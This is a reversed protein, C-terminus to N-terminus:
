GSCSLTLCIDYRYLYTNIRFHNHIFYSFSVQQYSTRPLPVPRQLQGGGGGAAPGHANARQQSHPPGSPPPRKPLPPVRNEQPQPPQEIVPVRNEHPPQEVVLSVKSGSSLCRSRVSASDPMPVYSPNVIVTGSSHPFLPNARLQRLIDNTSITTPHFPFAAASTGGGAGGDNGILAQDSSRSRQHLAWSDGPAAVAGAASTPSLTNSGFPSLFAGASTGGGGGRQQSQNQGGGNRATSNASFESDPTCLSPAIFM